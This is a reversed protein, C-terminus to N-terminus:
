IMRDGHKTKPPPAFVLRDLPYILIMGLIILPIGFRYNKELFAGTAAACLIFSLFGHYYSQLKTWTFHQGNPITWFLRAGKRNLSKLPWLYLLSVLLMIAAAGPSNEKLLFGASMGCFLIGPFARIGFIIINM